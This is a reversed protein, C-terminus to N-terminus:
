QSQAEHYVKQLQAVNMHGFQTYFHESQSSNHSSNNIGAISKYNCVKASISGVKLETRQALDRCLAMQMGRPFGKEQLQKFIILCAIENADNWPSNNRYGPM